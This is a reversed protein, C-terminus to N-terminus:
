QLVYNVGVRIDYTGSERNDFYKYRTNRSFYNGEVLLRMNRTVNLRIRPNFVFLLSNSVDGQANLYEMNGPLDAKDEYGKWTFLHYLEAKISASGWKGFDM